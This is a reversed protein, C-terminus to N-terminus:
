GVLTGTTVINKDQLSAQEYRIDMLKSGATRLRIGALLTALMSNLLVLPLEHRVLYIDAM